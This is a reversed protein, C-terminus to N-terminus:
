GGGPRRGLVCTVPPDLDLLHCRPEVLGAAALQDTLCRSAADTDAATAGPYRPQFGLALVGGPELHRALDAVVADQDPWFQWVNMAFIRDFTGLGAPLAEASGEILTLRGEAVAARNRRRAQGVMTTSHDLGVLEGATVTRAASELAIGPGPGIELVRHRPALDLLGVMWRNREVNSARSSM